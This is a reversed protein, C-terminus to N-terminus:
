GIDLSYTLSTACMPRTQNDSPLFSPKLVGKVEFQFNVFGFQLIYLMRKLRCM